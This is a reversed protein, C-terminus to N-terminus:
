SYYKCTGTSYERLFMPREYPFSLMVSQASGFLCFIMFMSVAGVHANFNENKGNDKGAAQFFILSYLLNLFITVGFRGALAATDRYNQVAERYLLEYAQYGISRQIKFELPMQSCVMDSYAGEKSGSSKTMFLKEMGEEESQCLDMVFDSPNFNEPCPYGKGTFYDVVSNVSGFYFIRGQRMYIVKDFLFFVESSPQHITCLIACQTAAVDKLLAVLNFASFSDLGSTPEDLFLLTPDTIVEVGVSVRKKEGGSIGKILPGGILVDACSDLGLKSLLDNVLKTIGEETTGNPLRMRASFALAERPTATALLADEQMCYSINQRFGVPDIQCGGVFIKGTVKTEGSSSARGSLLNLLSSKGAGSPGLVACVEGQKVDGFVNTLIQKDGAMFNVDSWTISRNLAKKSDMREVNRESPAPSTAVMEYEQADSADTALVAETKIETTSM